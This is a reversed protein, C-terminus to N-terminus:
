RDSSESADPTTPFRKRSDVVYLLVLFGILASLTAMLIFACRWGQIGWFQQGAM